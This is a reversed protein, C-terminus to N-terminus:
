QTASGPGGLGSGGCAEAVIMPPPTMPTLVAHCRARAPIPLMKTMSRFKIPDPDEAFGSPPTLAVNESGPMM